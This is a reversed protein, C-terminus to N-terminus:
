IRVAILTAELIVGAGNGLRCFLSAFLDITDRQAARDNWFKVASRRGAVAAGRTSPM